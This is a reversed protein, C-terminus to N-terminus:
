DERVVPPFLWKLLAGTRGGWAAENHQAGEAEVYHLDERWGRRVLVDRFRRANEWGPEATGTDLWLRVAPKKRLGEVFKAPAGDDWWMSPSMLGAAGFVRPHWLACYFSILGGMSSGVVATHAAGELTPYRADIMPKVEEVVFRAYARGLGRSRCAEADWGSFKGRTPAYEDMRAFGTNYIGVMIPPDIEGVRILGAATRGAHWANGLFATRPDFINQGDQFYVVPHRRRRGDCGPPLWVVVDRQNGLIRSAFRRHLRLEGDPFKDIAAM